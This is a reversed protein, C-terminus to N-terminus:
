LIFHLLKLVGESEQNYFFLCPKTFEFMCDPPLTLEFNFNTINYELGYLFFLNQSINYRWATDYINNKKLNFYLFFVHCTMNMKKESLLISDRLELISRDLPGGGFIPWLKGHFWEILKVIQLCM